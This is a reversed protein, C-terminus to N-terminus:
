RVSAEQAARAPLRAEVITGGAAGRQICLTGGIGNMRERMGVVGYHEPRRLDAPHVGAGDDAVRLLWGDGAQELALTTRTAAAHREV